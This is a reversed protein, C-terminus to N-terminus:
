RWSKSDGKRIPYKIGDVSLSYASDTESIHPLLSQMPARLIRLKGELSAARCYFVNEESVELTEPQFEFEEGTEIRILWPSTESLLAKVVHPTDEVEVSVCKGDVEVIFSHHQDSWRIHRSFYEAVKLHSVLAEEHFWQGDKSFRLQGPMNM